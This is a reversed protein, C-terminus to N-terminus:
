PIALFKAVLMGASRERDLPDVQRLGPLKRFWTRQRRAYQRTAAQIDALVEAQGAKGDILDYVRRYGLAGTSLVAPRGFLKELGAAEEVWGESLMQKSRATIAQSLAEVGPDLGLWLVQGAACATATDAHWSSLPRGTSRFVELSRLVRRPNALDMRGAGSPDARRLEGVLLPLGQNRLEDELRNRVEAPVPPIGALGEVAARFYLGSGGALLPTKGRDWARKFAERADASFRGATYAQGPDVLDLLDWAERELPGPKATGLDMGRYVQMSDASILQLDFRSALNEALLTKGGATPGVLCILSTPDTM